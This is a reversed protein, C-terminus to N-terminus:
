LSPFFNGHFRTNIFAIKACNLIVQEPSPVQLSAGSIEEKVQCHDLGATKLRKCEQLNSYNWVECDRQPGLGLTSCCQEIIYKLVLAFYVLSTGAHGQVM